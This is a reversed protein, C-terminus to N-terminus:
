SSARALEARMPVLVLREGVRAALFPEGDRLEDGLVSVWNAHSDAFLEEVSVRLVRAIKIAADVSPLHRGAEAASGLQRTM